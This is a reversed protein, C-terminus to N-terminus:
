EKIAYSYNINQFAIDKCWEDQEYETMSDWENEDIDEEFDEKSYVNIGADLHIKITIM